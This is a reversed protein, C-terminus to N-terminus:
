VLGRLERVVPHDLSDIIRGQFAIRVLDEFSHDPWEPEPLTGSAEFIEYAGLGMNAVVRIWKHMAREAAEFATRHWELLRGGEGPLRVPWLFVVGTRSVATFLQVPVIETALEPIVQQHVIYTEQRDKLEIIGCALRYKEDPRVRIFWQKNPKRIPVSVLLKKVGLRAGFDQSLRLDKIDLPDNLDNKNADQSNM